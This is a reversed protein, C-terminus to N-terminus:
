SDRLTPRGPVSGPSVYTFNFENTVSSGLNGAVVQGSLSGDNTFSVTCPDYILVDLPQSTHTTKSVSDLLGNSRLELLRPWQSVQRSETNSSTAISTWTTSTTYNPSCGRRRVRGTIRDDNSLLPKHRRVLHEFRIVLRNRESTPQDSGRRPISADACGTLITWSPFSSQPTTLNPQTTSQSFWRLTTWPAESTTFATVLV